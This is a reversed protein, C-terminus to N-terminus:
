LKMWARGRGRHVSGFTRNERDCQRIVGERNLEHLVPRLLGFPVKVVSSLWYGSFTKGSPVRALQTTVTLKLDKPAKM